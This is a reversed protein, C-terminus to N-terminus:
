LTEELISNIAGRLQHAAATIDTQAFIASIVAAGDIGSGSLQFINSRNIGGIAVVPVAVSTCIQRLAQPSVVHADTKTSTSFVAGVGLYDAGDQESQLAQAVTHASIGIIRDPGLLRRAESLSMDSQGLHVGDAGSEIAIKVNDNIILPVHYRRCLERLIIAEQLFSTYDLNKERLQVMTAGGRLASEVDHALDHGHLWSRDTVAYLRLFKKDFKM